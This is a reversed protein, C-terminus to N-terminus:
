RCPTGLCLTGSLFSARSSVFSPTRLFLLFSYSRCLLPACPFLAVSLTLICPLALEVSVTALMSTTRRLSPLSSAGLPCVGRLACSLLPLLASTPRVSTVGAFASLGPQGAHALSSRAASCCSCRCSFAPRRPCGPAAFCGVHPTMWSNTVGHVVTRYGLAAAAAQKLLSLVAEAAADVQLQISCTPPGNSSLPNLGFTPTSQTERFQPKSAKEPDSPRLPAGIASYRKTKEHLPGHPSRRAHCSSPHTTLASGTSM